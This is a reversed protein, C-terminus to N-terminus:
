SQARCRCRSQEGSSVTGHWPLARVGQLGAHVPTRRLCRFRAAHMSHLPNRLRASVQRKPPATRLTVPDGAGPDELSSSASSTSTVLQALSSFPGSNNRSGLPSTALSGM